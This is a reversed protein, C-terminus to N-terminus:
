KFELPLCLSEVALTRYGDRRAIEAPIAVLHGRSHQLDHALCAPRTKSPLLGASEVSNRGASFEGAKAAIRAGGGFKCLFDWWVRRMVRHIFNRNMGVAARIRSPVCLLTKIVVFIDRRFLIARSAAPMVALM